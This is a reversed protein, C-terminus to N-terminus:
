RGANSCAVAAVILPPCSMSPGRTSCNSCSKAAKQPVRSHTPAPFPSSASDSAKRASPMPGPFSTMTGAKVKMAVQNATECIPAFGTGTSTSSSPLMSGAAIGAATVLRVRAM